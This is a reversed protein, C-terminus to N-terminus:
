SRSGRIQDMVSYVTVILRNRIRHSLLRWRSQDYRKHIRYQEEFQKRFGKSSISDKHVRFCALDERMYGPAGLRGLRLWLDFDMATPLETDLLGAKALAARRIFVAPQSIFNEVLLRNYSYNRASRNKYATIWKRIERDQEDIIRCNGYLWLSEPHCDFWGAVKELTGALYLDDSNLWGIIEGTCMAFGKNLADAMGKDPESVMRIRGAYRQLVELTGDSSGGDIVIYEVVRDAQQSLVSQLTRDIFLAQNFSPTVISFGTRASGPAM